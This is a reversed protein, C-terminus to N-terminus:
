GESAGAISVIFLSTEDLEIEDLLREQTVILKEYLASVAALISDRDEPRAFLADSFLAFYRNWVRSDAGAFDTGKEAAALAKDAEGFSLYYSVLYQHLSNSPTELLQNAYRDAKGRYETLGLEGVANVYSVMWDNKEFVDSGAAKELSSLFRVYSSGANDVRSVASLNLVILVAYVLSVVGPVAAALASWARKALPRGWCVGALAMVAYAYPLYLSTSMVVEMASHLVVMAFGACLAPYLRRFPADKQRGRWLNLLTLILLAAYLIFGVAGADLLVQIYHNHVYKTEYYFDQYGFLLSEFGGLGAGLVPRDRFVKMGDRFFAARQIANQNAFLGQMRNAIFSPLLPYGLHLATTEPGSLLAESLSTGEPASFSLYVVRSDEPVTFAAGAAAGAYLVTETHMIIEQEDQSIVRVNVAGDSSLSLTYNGGPLYASRRLIEGPSLTVGSRLTLGLVGYVVVLLVAGVLVAGAAKRRLGLRADLRPFLTLELLIVAAADVILALLPISLRAGESEFFRFSIFVTIVTPIAIELMRLLASLRRGGACVLYLVVCLVFFGTAGMSFNLLFASAQFAALLAAFGRQLRNEASELLYLSFFICVALLGASINANGFIGTLRTGSEFGTPMGEFGSFLMLLGRCLGLSANDISLFAYVAGTASLVLLLKRVAGEERPLFFFVFIVLPLAFLQKSFERLFFKGAGAWLLSVALWALYAAFLLMFARIGDGPKKRILAIVCLVLTIACCCIILGKRNQIFEWLNLLAFAFGMLLALLEFPFSRKAPASSAANNVDKKPPDIRTKKM